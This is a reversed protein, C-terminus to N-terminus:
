FETHLRLAFLQAPGRDPNYAPNNILQYDFTLNTNKLLRASYFFELIQEPAYSPHAGDGILIGMGGAKFYAQANTSLENQVLALGAKDNERGWTKGQISLGAAYSTNIDTFDFSETKGDNHSARAFIGLNESVAQEFNLAFGTKTDMKRVTATSPTTGIPANTLATLYNGMYGQNAFFLVKVKGALQGIQYRRELETVVEFQKLSTDLNESNPFDSLVFFGARATWAHLSLETAAGYTYGWSDAAYDFAGADIVSWNLFDNKADHAYANNDFIDVVSFKGVTVVLRDESTKMAFQNIGEDLDITTAGFNFTQRYFCRPIKLYPTNKGVKYAEGSSFGALGLTDSLGFGQDIEPNIFLEGYESVHLGLFLTLDNTNKCSSQPTLSNAGTETAAFSPHAQITGTYQAHFSFLEASKLTSAGATETSTSTDELARLSAAGWLLLLTVRM